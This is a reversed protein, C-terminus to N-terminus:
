IAAVSLGTPPSAGSLVQKLWKSGDALAADALASISVAELFSHTAGRYSVARVPVRALGLKEALADSQESLIDCDPITLFTPPLGELRARLPCVLPNAAEEPSRTYQEFFRAMEPATLMAGDGGRSATAAPSCVSDFAGYNLLLASLRTGEGADRLLLATSLSLNGGASDGGLALRKADIGIEAGHEGVWRVVEAIQNLAVPFKAEPSLPYDLGIVAVGSRAAYERMVRDHTDLSFMVWGGGHAYLLAPKPGAPGPDYVRIRMRGTGAPVVLERVNLMVPGGARWPARVVEAARRVEPPTLSGFGAISAYAENVERVFRGVDPDVTPTTAVPARSPM